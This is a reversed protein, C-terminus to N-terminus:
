SNRSHELIEYANKTGYKWAAREASKHGGLLVSGYCLRLVRIHTQEFKNKDRINKAKIAEEWKEPYMEQHTMFAIEQSKIEVNKVRM